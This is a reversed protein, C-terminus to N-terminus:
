DGNHAPSLLGITPEDILQLGGNSNASMTLTELWQRNLEIPRSGYYKFFVPIGPGIWAASQGDGIGPDDKWNLFFGEGRRLKSSFVAQLHALVRDDMQIESKMSGYLLKGM